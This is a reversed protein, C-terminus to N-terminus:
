RVGPTPDVQVNDILRTTGIRVALAILVRREIRGVPQMDEADVVSIYDVRAPGAALIRERVAAVVAEADREGREVRERALCLAQHLSPAQRREAPSLYANRSSMALGDPERVIPCGVIEVPLDLDRTMRRLVALQQADKEGFYARDPQVINFLKAVVTAVGDFHGPRFPGCLTETLRAVHITTQAGPPYMAEVPPLFVLGAGAAECRARDGTEDRPYKAFDENPGFQTPNVFISVVVFTGDRRAAEILSVHGAHLAGMTPVFGIRGGGQRQRRVIERVTQIDRAIEMHINFGM